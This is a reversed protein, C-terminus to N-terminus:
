RSVTGGPNTNSSNNTLNYTVHDAASEPISAVLPKLLFPAPSNDPSPEISIVAMGGSLDTPFDLGTPANTIFDEGPFPPTSMTGSFPASADAGSVSNFTGTTVPTGNIVAWGEYQWGEPLVPLDLGVSPNGSSLDLFWLGSKEDDTTSTSPTAM